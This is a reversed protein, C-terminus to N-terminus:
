FSYAVGTDSALGLRQFATVFKVDRKAFKFDTSLSIGICAGATIGNLAAIVPKKFTRLKEWLPMHGKKMIEELPTELMEKVDAGASFAKGNGTIIIVKIKDDSDLKNLADVLEDVIQFNIANLKDPRNLKIIAINERAEIQITSYMQVYNVRM